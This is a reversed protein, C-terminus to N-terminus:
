VVILAPELKRSNESSLTAEETLLDYVDEKVQLGSWPNHEQSYAGLLQTKLVTVQIAVEVM